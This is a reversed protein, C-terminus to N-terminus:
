FEMIIKITEKKNSDRTIADINEYYLITGSDKVFDGSYKNSLNELIADSSQGLITRTGNPDLNFVGFENSVYLVDDDTGGNIEAHHILANPEAYAILSEQRVEEDLEFPDSGSAFNGVLRSLQVAVDFNSVTKDNIEISNSTGIVSSALSYSGFIKGEPVFEGAVDSLTIQGTSVSTVEGVATLEISSVEAGTNTITPTGNTVIQYNTPTSLVTSIFNDSDKNILIFDDQTFSDDYTPEIPNALSVLLQGDAAAAAATPNVTVTPPTDYGDGQL